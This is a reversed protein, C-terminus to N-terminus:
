EHHLAAVPDVRAARLSPLLAAAAAVVLLLGSAAGIMAPDSASVGFLLSRLVRAAAISGAVGIAVGVASWRLAHGLVLLAIRGPTAGLAMRVGVEQTRRSVLFSMLGYLGAAALMVGVAAFLSLLAASFRPRESVQGLRQQMPGIIAPVTPDMAAIETRIWNTVIDPRSASRVTVFAEGDYQHLARAAMSADRGANPDAIRKRPVYYEADAPATLGNNKVDEAVGVVTYQPSEAGPARFLSVAQGLPDTSGFLHRALSASIIIVNENSTVDTEQFPRGQLIRIGLARFYEPSVFRWAVIRGSTQEAPPMGLARLASLPRSHVFGTPPLTDSIAVASVGPFRRLRNTLDDFFQQRSATNPYRLPGVTIDAAVVQRSDLGTAVNQLNWLSRLLLGAASLLILSLALQAASLAHRLSQRSGGFTRSGALGEPTTAAAAIGFLIGCAIAMALAFLLVRMDLSAQQMRPIGSPALVKFIRLLAGALGCGAIGGIGSLVLSETLGQRMLRARSAGLAARIALERQRSISRALMLNAVNACVILLISILAAFLVWSALRVDHIQFDRLSRIDVQAENWRARPLNTQISEELYPRAMERAQELSVGPKLRGFVRVPGSSQGPVYATVALAQPVLLDAHTLTPLEFEPPLVGVIETPAGDISIKKGLADASGGFRSQWFGYSVIAIKPGNRRDEEPTFERGLLPRIGFTSLFTREVEACALRQPNQETLDCDALGRWSTLAAFGSRGDRLHLYDNAIMFDGDMLTFTMGVSALRDPEPYPLSRFLLRDVVSFVATTTGIGAAVILIVTLSFSANRRLGRLVFLLDQLM